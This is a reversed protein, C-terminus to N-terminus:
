IFINISVERTFRRVGRCYRNDVLFIPRLARTIRVHSSQRLLVAVAEIIMVVM